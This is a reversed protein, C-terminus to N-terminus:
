HNALISHAQLLYTGNPFRRLYQAAVDRAAARGSLREVALMKRGLAEAADAGDPAETLYRRYWALGSAPEGQDDALRGLLFAAARSAATNPFRQRQAMMARVAVEQRGSYRAADALAALATGDVEVLTRDLGHADAEALVAAANGTAVHGAWRRPGWSQATVGAPVRAKMRRAATAAPAGPSTRADADQVAPPQESPAPEPLAVRDPAAAVLPSPPLGPGAAPVAQPPAAAEPAAPTGTGALTGSNGSDLIHLERSALRATLHQGARLTVREPLLPGNVQVSGSRMRVEVVEDTGSWRVAFATGTVHVVYPGAEVSWSARPRHVVEFSAEGEEVRLRAGHAGRSVVSVRAGSALDVRSGDSFLVETDTEGVRRIYGDQEFTGGGVVYTLPRTRQIGRGVVFLALVAAAGAGLLLLGRRAGRPRRARAEQLRHWVAPTPGPGADDAAIQRAADSMAAVVADGKHDDRSV